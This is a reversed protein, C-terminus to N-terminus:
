LIKELKEFYLEPKLKSLCAFDKYYCERFDNGYTFTMNSQCFRCALDEPPVVAYFNWGLQDYRYPMRYKPEVSSFAGVIATDTCGALHMLGNDLGILAKAGAIIKTAEFLSTKDVLNIGVSFDIDNSFSGKIIHKFGTETTKKGLFVVTYGKRICYDDIENVYAAYLERANATHGTTMVIYKEPLSFKEISTKSLDPRLYNKVEIEVDKNVLVHFAHDTLHSAMNNYLSRKFCRTERPTFKKMEDMGRVIIDKHLCSKAFEKFYSPVWLHQQIHKHNDHIYKVAPLRAIQDGLGGNEFLVNIPKLGPHVERYMEM